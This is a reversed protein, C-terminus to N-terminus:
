YNKRQVLIKLRPENIEKQHSIYLVIYTAGTSLVLSNQSGKNSLHQAVEAVWSWWRLLFASAPMFTAEPDIETLYLCLSGVSSFVAEGGCERKEIRSRQRLQSLLLLCHGLYCQKTGLKLHKFYLM